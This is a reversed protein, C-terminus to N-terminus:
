VVRVVCRMGGRGGMMEDVWGFIGDGRKGEEKRGLGCIWMWMWMWMWMGMYMYLVSADGVGVGGIELGVIGNDLRNGDRRGYSDGCM